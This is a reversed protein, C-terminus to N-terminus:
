MNSYQTKLGNRKIRTGSCEKKREHNSCSYYSYKNGRSVLTGGTMSGGCIACRVKGSLYYEVKATHKGPKHKDADMKSQVKEWLENEIIRPIADPVEIIGEDEKHSNRKGSRGGAVKGFTYIGIYKRNRLLDHLSNKGFKGIM